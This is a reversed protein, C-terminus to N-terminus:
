TQKPANSTGRQPTAKKLDDTVNQLVTSQLLNEVIDMANEVHEPKPRHGRHSAANGVDLAAELTERNKESLYGDSQLASLKKPFSGKDGVKDLIVMDILARAGMMALSRSDAHLAAYVEELLTEMDSPLDDKWKPFRRSIRPPYFNSEHEGHNWESFYFRRRLCVDECGCCEFVDYITSWSVEIGHYQDVVESGRHTRTLLTLHKTEHGCQNCHIRAVEQKTDSM